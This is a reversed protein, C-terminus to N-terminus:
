APRTLNSLLLGMSFEARSMGLVSTDSSPLYVQWTEVKGLPFKSLLMVSMTQLILKGGRRAKEKKRGGGVVERMRMWGYKYWFTKM